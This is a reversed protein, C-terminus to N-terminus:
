LINRKSLWDFNHVWDDRMNHKRLMTKVDIKKDNVLIDTDFRGENYNPPDIDLLRHVTM